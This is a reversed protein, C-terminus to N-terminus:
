RNLRNDEVHTVFQDIVEELDRRQITGQPITAALTILNAKAKEWSSTRAVKLLIDASLEDMSIGDSPM